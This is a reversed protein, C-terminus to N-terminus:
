SKDPGPVVSTGSSGEPPSNKKEEDYVVHITMPGNDGPDGPRQAAKGEISERIEKAAKQDGAMAKVWMQLVLAEAFTAGPEIPIGRRKM